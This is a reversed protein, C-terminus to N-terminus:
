LNSKRTINITGTLKADVESKDKWGYNNKLNFIIGASNRNTYLSEVAYQYIKDKAKKITGFYAKKGQYNLVTDEDCNLFVALGQVTYPKIQRMVATDTKNGQKDKIFTPNGYMDIKQEWCSEFYADIKIRLEDVTKFKLPRGM